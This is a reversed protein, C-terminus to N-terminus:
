LTKWSAWNELSLKIKNGECFEKKIDIFLEYLGIEEKLMAPARTAM